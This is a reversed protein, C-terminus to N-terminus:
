SYAFGTTNFSAIDSNSSNWTVGTVANGNSDVVTFTQTDGALMSLNTPSISVGTIQPPSPLVIFPLSTAAVGGSSVVVPGSEAGAPVPVVVATDTWSTPTASVGNFSVSGGTGFTTGSITVPTGFAGAAPSLTTVTPSVTFQLPNTTMGVASLTVAVAGAPLSPVQVTIASSSWSSITAVSNGFLVSGSLGFDGGSITILSGVGGTSPSLSSLSPIVTFPFTNGSLAGALSVSLTGLGPSANAPVQAIIQNFNWSIINANAGNIVVNGTGDLQSVAEFNSGTITVSTGATGSSVSIGAISAIGTVTFATGSSSASNSTVVINGTTAGSPVLATISNPSWSTITSSAGNFAVTGSSGLNFGSITVSAGIPAAIPSLTTVKPIVTFPVSYTGTAGAYVILQVTGPNASFPVSATISTDSWSYITAAAGGITLSGDDLTGFGAGSITVETGYSGTSPSVNLVDPPQVTLTTSGSLSGVSASIATTGANIGYAVGSSGAANAITATGTNSSSWIASQLTQASGQSFTGIASFLQTGGLALSTNAPAVNISVLGPLILSAPQYSDTTASTLGGYIGGIQIATGNSLLTSTQGSRGTTLPQSSSFTNATPDYLETTGDSTCSASCNSFGGAIIVQGNTLLTVTHDFRPVNMNSTTYSFSGANPDYLEATNSPCGPSNCTSGGALLVLGNNLLTASASARPTNLTATTGFSGTVPDYLEATAPYNTGDFGGALLM